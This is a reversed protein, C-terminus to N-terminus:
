QRWSPIPTKQYVILKKKLLQCAIKRELDVIIIDYKPFVGDNLQLKGNENRHFPSLNTPEYRDSNKEAFEAITEVSDNIIM